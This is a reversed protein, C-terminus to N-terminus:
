ARGCSSHVFVQEGDDDEDEVGVVLLSCCCRCCLAVVVDCLSLVADACLLSLDVDSLSLSYMKLPPMWLVSAVRVLSAVVFAAWAGVIASASVDAVYICVVYLSLLGDLLSIRLADPDAVVDYLVLIVVVVDSILIADLILMLVDDVDLQDDHAVVVDSHANLLVDVDSCSCVSDDVVLYVDADYDQYVLEMVVDCFLLLRLLVVVAVVDKVVIDADDDCVLPVVVVVKLIVEVDDPKFADQNDVDVM